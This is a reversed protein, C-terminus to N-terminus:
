RQLPHGPFTMLDHTPVALEGPAEKGAQIISLLTFAIPLFFYTCNATGFM